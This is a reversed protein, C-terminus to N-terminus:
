LLDERADDEISEQLSRAEINLDEIVGEVYIIREACLKIHHYERKSVALTIGYHSQAIVELYERISKTIAGLRAQKDMKVGSYAIAAAQEITIM